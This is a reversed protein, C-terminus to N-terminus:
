GSQCYGCHRIYNKCEDLGLRELLSGIAMWLAELTRASKAWDDVARVREHSMLRALGFASLSKAFGGRRQWSVIACIRRM